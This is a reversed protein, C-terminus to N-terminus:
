GGSPPVEHQNNVIQSYFLEQTYKIDVQEGVPKHGALQACKKSHYVNGDKDMWGEDHPGMPRHCGSCRYSFNDLRVSPGNNGM